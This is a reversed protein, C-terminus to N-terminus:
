SGHAEREFRAIDDDRRMKRPEVDERVGAFKGASSDAFVWALLVIDSVGVNTLDEREQLGDAFKPPRKVIVVFVDFGHRDVPEVAEHLRVVVYAVDQIPNRVFVVGPADEHGRDRRRPLELPVNPGSPGDKCVHGDPRPWVVNARM